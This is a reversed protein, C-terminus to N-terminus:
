YTTRCPEAWSQGHFGMSGRGSKYCNVVYDGMPFRAVGDNEELLVGEMKDTGMNEIILPTLQRLVEYGIGLPLDGLDESTNNGGFGYLPLSEIGFPCFGLGDLEGYTYFANAVGRADGYTEPIFLPNGARAYM